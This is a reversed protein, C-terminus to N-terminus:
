KTGRENARKRCVGIERFRERVKGKFFSIYLSLFKGKRDREKERKERETDRERGRGVAVGSASRAFNGVIHKRTIFISFFDLYYAYKCYILNKLFHPFPFPSLPSFGGRGRQFGRM